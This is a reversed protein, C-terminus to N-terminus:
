RWRGRLGRRRKDGRRTNRSLTLTLIGRQQCRQGLIRVGARKRLVLLPPFHWSLLMTRRVLGYLLLACAMHTAINFVHYTFPERGGVAYNIAMSLCVIPRGVLINRDPATMSRSLPWISEIHDNQLISNYDDYIFPGHLDNAYVAGILVVIAIPIVVHQYRRVM